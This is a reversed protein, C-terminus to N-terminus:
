RKFALFTKAPGRVVLMRVFDGPRVADLARAAAKPGDVRQGNIQVIVDGREVGGRDAVSGPEIRVVQAGEDLGPDGPGGPGDDRRGARLRPDIAGLTLGIASSEGRDADGRPADRDRGKGVAGEGPMAELTLRVGMPKGDRYVELDVARGGGATSAVAHFVTCATFATPLGQAGRLPRHMAQGGAVRQAPAARAALTSLAQSPARLRVM